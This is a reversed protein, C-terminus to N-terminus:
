PLLESMLEMNTLSADLRGKLGTKYFYQRSMDSIIASYTVGSMYSTKRETGSREILYKTM